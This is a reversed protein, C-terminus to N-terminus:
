CALIGALSILQKADAVAYGTMDNNFYVYVDFGQEIWRRLKPVWPTLGEKGYLSAFMKGPGHFRLYMFDSSEPEQEPYPFRSSHALVFAARHSALLKATEQNEPTTFWSRHRFEFALRLPRSLVLRSGSEEMATLFEDLRPLDCAMSPPLQILIPGMKPGLATANVLFREVEAHVGSIRKIHTIFRSLKVSFVFDQPTQSAWKEYTSPRPLHYFSYNVEVTHFRQSYFSLYDRSRLEEPYFSEWPYTWGSTGVYLRGKPAQTM